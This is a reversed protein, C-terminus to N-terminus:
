PLSVLVVAAGALVAGARQVLPIREGLVIRALLLTSAPYLSAILAVLTLLGQRTALLFSVHGTASILGSAAVIPWSAEQGTIPPAPRRTFLKAVTLLVIITAQSAVVPWLGARHSTADLAVFFLGFGLGAGLAALLHVAQMGAAGKRGTGPSGALLVVAVLALPLGVLAAPAPREGTVLGVTVPVVAALVATIPAVISMMGDALARFLLILGAGGAVGALAGITADRATWTGGVLAGTVLLCPLALSYARLVVTTSPLRRAALGGFFDSAGYAFAAILALLAAM